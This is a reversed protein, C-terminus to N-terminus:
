LTTDPLFLMIVFSFLSTSVPSLSTEIFSLDINVPILSTEILSLGTNVLCLSTDM